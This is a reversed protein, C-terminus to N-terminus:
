GVRAIPLAIGMPVFAGADRDALRQIPAKTSQADEVLQVIQGLASEQGVSTAPFTSSRTTDLTARIVEDGIRNAVPIPEGTLMSEDVASAGETVIGDAPIKEGPKVILLDGNVVAEVAPDTERGERVLHAVKPRLRALRPIAESTRGKARAELLRGLLILAIIAAVAEYYVDAPLGARTFLGPVFTAVLSYLYAAGTGVGILTNMDATRHRFGSWAGRYFQRGSWAVVPLTLVALGVKVWALDLTWGQAAVWDRLRAAAPMLLRGLLDFQKFTGMPRDAMLLMAGTMALVTVVAAVTFKWTLERIERARAVREREVPDEAAIPAAVRFGTAEVARELAGTTTVGPVYEVTVTETAQNAAVKLVGPVRALEQELPAVSPAYHLDTIGFTVTAKGCNYGAARVTQVLQAVNTQTDDYDVAARATAYNVAAQTVGGVGQLAEQVTAACSACSMGEIPLVIRAKAM